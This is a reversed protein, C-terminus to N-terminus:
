FPAFYTTVLCLTPLFFQTLFVTNLTHYIVFALLLPMTKPSSFLPSFLFPPIFQQFLTQKKRQKKKCAQGQASEGARAHELLGKEKRRCEIFRCGYSESVFTRGRNFTDPFLRVTYFPTLELVKGLSLKM